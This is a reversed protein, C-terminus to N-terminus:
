WNPKMRLLATGAKVADKYIEHGPDIKKAAEALKRVASLAAQFPVSLDDANRARRANIANQVVANSSRPACANKAELSTEPVLMKSGDFFVIWYKGPSDESRVTGIRDERRGGFVGRYLVQDGMKFKANRATNALRMKSEAWAIEGGKSHSPDAKGSVVKWEYIGDDVDTIEYVANGDTVRDGVKFKAM